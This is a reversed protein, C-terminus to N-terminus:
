DQKGETLSQAPNTKGEEVTGQQASDSDGDRTSPREEDKKKSVNLMELNKAIKEVEDEVTEGPEQEGVELSDKTEEWADDLEKEWGLETCLERVIEDCKGLIVVDHPRNFHGVEDLNILVRPCDDPVFDVLSAFPHVTLSTGMVILLDAKGLHTISGHFQEPLQESTLWTAYVNVRREFTGGGRFLCYRTKGAGRLTETRVASDRDGREISGEKDERCRLADPM